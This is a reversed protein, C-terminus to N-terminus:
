LVIIVTKTYHLMCLELHVVQFLHGFSAIIIVYHTISRFAGWAGVGGCGDSLVELVALPYKMADFGFQQVM